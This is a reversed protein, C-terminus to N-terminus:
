ASRSPRGHSSPNGPRIRRAARTIFAAVPTTRRRIALVLYALWGGVVAASWPALAILVPGDCPAACRSPTWLPAIVIIALMSLAPFLVGVFVM